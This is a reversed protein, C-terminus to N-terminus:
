ILVCRRVALGRSRRRIKGETVSKMHVFLCVFLIIIFMYGCSVGFTLVLGAATLPGSRPVRSRLHLTPVAWMSHTRPHPLHRAFSIRGQQCVFTAVVRSVGHRWASDLLLATNLGVLIHPFAGWGGQIRIPAVSFLLTFCNTFSTESQKPHRRVHRSSSHACSRGKNPVRELVQRSAIAAGISARACEKNVWGGM